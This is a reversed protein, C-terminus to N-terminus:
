DPFRRRIASIIDHISIFIDVLEPDLTTLRDDYYRELGEGGRGDARVTYVAEGRALKFADVKTVNKGVVKM